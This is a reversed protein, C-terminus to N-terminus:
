KSATAFIAQFNILKDRRNEMRIDTFGSAQLAEMYAEPHWNDGCHDMVKMSAAKEVSDLRLTTVMLAGPKMVRHIAKAGAKLDLWFYYCNCHFVKDATNDQIPMAVLDSLLLTLKGKDIEERMRKSAMDHMYTSYDVGILKGEPSKVLSSAARLGFGPGHGLELVIENPQINCLKVANEELVVNHWKFFKTVLWGTLSFTPHGLEKGVKASLMEEIQISIYETKSATAFIAQFNILKDRRNEMRINTFGSAQLAEMYAEPRWNDGCHDMVKMSAAKEVSDLRLTTVMLAGPKMVRHIAKAGAKLDPWFYYCNCHFVKDATNDQIPMAVLDSLLLTLKGKDIEERMRKSAMDHMYTSYDVGILKGEPSKLLSAAARLGFGPGHGLELVIENPQINCLKVANEELVVNHWKFFKTVLWGTLSFTPHGLEKGVKGSLM